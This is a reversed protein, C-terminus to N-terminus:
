LTSRNQDTVVKGIAGFNQAMMKQQEEAKQQHLFSGFRVVLLALVACLAGACASTPNASLTAQVIATLM